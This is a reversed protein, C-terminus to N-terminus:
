EKRGTWHSWVYKIDNLMDNRKRSLYRFLQVQSSLKDNWRLGSNLLSRQYDLLARWEPMTVKGQLSSDIWESREQASAHRWTCQQPHCRSIFLPEEIKRFTGLLALRALLARDSLAHSEFLRTQALAESRILGYIEFLRDGRHLLVNSFRRAPNPDSANAGIRHIEIEDGESDVIRTSSHCLVTESHRELLAVCRELYDPALLDDHAHWKFYKGRAREFCANYNPGAGVNREQRFYKVKPNKLAYTQGIVATADESANDLIIIEINKFTQDLLCELAEKLFNEGNYVPLGISILPELAEMLCVEM